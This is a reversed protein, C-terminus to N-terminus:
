FDLVSGISEPIVLDAVHDQPTASKNVIVLHQGQFYRTLSAAPNVALSTGAILLLEAKSIVDIAGMMVDSNLPEEYLVVDPKVIGECTHKYYHSTRKSIRTESKCDDKPNRECLEEDEACDPCRPVGDSSNNHLAITEALTFHRGCNTCFNRHVSGHLEFVSKSGAAQHLGDINQTVVARLKGDAELQALKKHARNPLADVAVVKDFYFEFFEKPHADFFSRSLMTEPPFPYKLAYLGDASRFDPIGSETSVGAGGFFVIDGPDSDEIWKRLLSIDSNLSESNTGNM